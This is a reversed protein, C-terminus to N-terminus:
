CSSINRKRRPIAWIESSWNETSAKM